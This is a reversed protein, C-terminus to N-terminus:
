KMANSYILKPFFIMQSLSHALLHFEPVTQCLKGILINYVGAQFKLMKRPKFKTPSSMSWSSASFIFAMWLKDFHWPLAQIVM